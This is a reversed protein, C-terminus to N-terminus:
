TTKELLQHANKSNHEDKQETREKRADTTEDTRQVVPSVRDPVVLNPIIVRHIVISNEQVVVGKYPGM